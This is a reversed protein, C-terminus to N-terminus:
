RVRLAAHKVVRAGASDTFTARITIRKRRLHRAASRRVHVIITTTGAGPLRGLSSAFRTRGRLLDIAVSCAEPCSVRIPLRRLLSARTVRSRAGVTAGNLSPRPSPVVQDVPPLDVLECSVVKDLRDAVARDSGPGCSYSEAAADRSNVTDNGFGSCSFIDCESPDPAFRDVGPGGDLLDSGASGTLADDGAEGFLQDDGHTGNITDNGGGGHVINNGAGADIVNPGDTGAIADSGDGAAINEIDAALNDADGAVGDDGQGDLTIRMPDSGSYVVQDIGAGGRVVDAGDVDSLQEAFSIGLTPALVDDGAEGDITDAGDGGPLPDTGDGGRIQDAFDTGKARDNGDGLEVRAGHLPCHDVIVGQVGEPQCGLSRLRPTIFMQTGAIGEDFVSLGQGSFVEFSVDNTEGPDATYVYQQTAPDFDLLSASAPQGVALASGVAMAIVTARLARAM